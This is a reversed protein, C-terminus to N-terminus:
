MKYNMSLYIYRHNNGSAALWPRSLDFTYKPTDNELINNVSLKMSLSNSFSYRASANFVSRADKYDPHMNSYDGESLGSNYHHNLIVLLRNDLYQSSLNTKIQLPPYRKEPFGNMKVGSVGINLIQNDEFM